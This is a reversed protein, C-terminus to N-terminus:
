NFMTIELNALAVSLLMANLLKRVIHHFSDLLYNIGSPHPNVCSFVM